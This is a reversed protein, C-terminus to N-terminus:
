NFSFGCRIKMYCGEQNCMSTSSVCGYCTGIASYDSSCTSTLAMTLLANTSNLYSYTPPSTAEAVSCVDLAMAASLPAAKCSDTTAFACGAALGFRLPQAYAYDPIYWGSDEFVALTLASAVANVDSWGNMLEGQFLREAFHSGRTGSGGYRELEAGDLSSCNFQARAAEVVQLNFTQSSNISRVLWARLM